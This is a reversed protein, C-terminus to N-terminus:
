ASAAVEQEVEGRPNFESDDQANEGGGGAVDRTEFGDGDDHRHHEQEAKDTEGRIVHAAGDRQAGDGPSAQNLVM